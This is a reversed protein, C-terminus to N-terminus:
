PAPMYEMGHNPPAPMYVMGTSSIYGRLAIYFLIGPVVFTLIIGWFLYKNKRKKSYKVLLMIGFVLSVIGALIPLVMILLFEPSVAVM